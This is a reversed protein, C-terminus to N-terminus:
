HKAMGSDKTNRNSCSRSLNAKMRGTGPRSLIRKELSGEATAKKLCRVGWEAERM